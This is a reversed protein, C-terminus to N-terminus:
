EEITDEHDDFYEGYEADLARLEAFARKREVADDNQEIMTPTTTIEAM